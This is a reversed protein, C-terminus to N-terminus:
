AQMKLNIRYIYWAVQLFNIKKMTDLDNFVLSNKLFSISENNTIYEDFFSYSKNSSIIHNWDGWPGQNGQILGMRKAIHRYFWIPFQIPSNIWWSFYPLRGDAHFIWKTKELYPKTTLNFLRRNMKWETPLVASIKVADKCMFPEYSRFLRRTTYLNPIATRMTAPYLVFWEHVSESRLKKIKEFHLKRRSNIERLVEDNVLINSLEKTRNEGKKFFEPLFPYRATNLTKLAYPSKLLSDSLYGGFVATYDALKYIKDFGLSHAHHYQHGTGVLKSAEPLIDLYHTKERFGVTCNANYKDAVKKAIKGERNMEDLFVYADRQLHYPLLGSLARSDEGGSIFQAVKDMKDTIRNVYGDLGARLARASEKINSYPNYEKPEWYKNVNPNRDNNNFEIHSSPELQKLETYATYPYTIVDNIIFDTLSVVDFNNSEKSVKALADIHTGIYLGKVSQHYYVPIFAMLDTVVDVANTNKNIRIITFPGSLDEDWQTQSEVCWRQYISETAEFSDDDVLFDNNRFYLVPGGIVILLHESTEFPQFGKYHSNSVALAGWSGHFETVEPPNSDYIDRISKSLVGEEIPESSYLYDSM